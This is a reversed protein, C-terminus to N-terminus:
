RLHRYRQAVFHDHAIWALLVGGAKCYRVCLEYSAHRVVCHMVELDISVARYDRQGVIGLQVVQRQHLRQVAISEIDTRDSRPSVLGLSSRTQGLMEAHGLLM